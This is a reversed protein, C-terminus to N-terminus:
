KHLKYYKYIKEHMELFHAPITILTENVSKNRNISNLIWFASYGQFKEHKALDFNEIAEFLGTMANQVTDELSLHFLNAKQYALKLAQRMNM